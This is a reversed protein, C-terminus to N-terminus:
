FRGKHTLIIFLLLKCYWGLIPYFKIAKKAVVSTAKPIVGGGFAMDLSSQHNCVIVKSGTSYMHEHGEIEVYLGTFFSFLYYYLRTSMWMILDPRGIIRLLVAFIMGCSASAALCVLNMLSRYYFGGNRRRNLILLAAAAISVTTNNTVSSVSLLM